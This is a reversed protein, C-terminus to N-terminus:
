SFQSNNNNKLIFRHRKFKKEYTVPRALMDTKGWDCCNSLVQSLERLAMTYIITGVFLLCDKGPLVVRIPFAFAM